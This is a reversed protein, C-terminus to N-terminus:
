LYVLNISSFSEHLQLIRYKHQVQMCFIEKRDLSIKIYMKSYLAKESDYFKAREGEGGGGGTV